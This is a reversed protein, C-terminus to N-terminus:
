EEEVEIDEEGKFRQFQVGGLRYRPILSNELRLKDVGNQFAEV